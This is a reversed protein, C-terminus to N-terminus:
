IDLIQRALKVGASLKKWNKFKKVDCISNIENILPINQFLVHPEEDESSAMLVTSVDSESESEIQKRKEKKKPKEKLALKKAEKALKEAEKLALKEAEKALKEAEKLALREAKENLKKAEKAFKEVAKSEVDQEKMANRESSENVKESEKESKKQKKIEDKKQHTVTVKTIVEIIEGNSNIRKLAEEASFGYMTACSNVTIRILSSLESEVNQKACEHAEIMSRMLVEIEKNVRQVSM